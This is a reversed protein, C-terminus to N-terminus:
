FINFKNNKMKVGVIKDKKEKYFRYKKNNFFYECYYIDNKNTTEINKSNYCKLNQNILTSTNIKKIGLNQSWVSNLFDNNIENFSYYKGNEFFVINKLNKNYILLYNPETLYLFLGYIICLFGIIKLTKSISLFLLIIGSVLIALQFNSMQKALLFSSPLNATWDTIICVINAFFGAVLYLFDGIFTGNFIMGVFSIPLIIFETLPIVPINSILGIWAYQKFHYIEFFVTSITAIISSILIGIIYKKYAQQKTFDYYNSTFNNNYFTTLGFVAMFSMQFSPSLIYNPSFLLMTFFTIFLINLSSKPRNLLLTISILLVMIFSRLSSIPINAIKIYFLCTLIAPIIALKKTNYKLAIKPFLAFIHISIFFIFSVVISMHLGSIALIHACGSHRINDLKEKPIFSNNGTLIAIIIGSGASHNNVQYIRKQIKNRLNQSNFNNLFSHKQKNKKIIEFNKAKGTAIIEFFKAYNEYSKDNPFKGYKMPMLSTKIKVIDNNNINQEKILEDDIKIRVKNNLLDNNPSKLVNLILITEQSTLKISEIKGTFTINYQPSIFSNQNIKKYKLNAVCFGILFMALFNVVIKSGIKNQNSIFFSYFFTIIIILLILLFLIIKLNDNIFFCTLIGVAFSLIYWYRINQKEIKLINIIYNKIIEFIFCINKTIKLLNNM